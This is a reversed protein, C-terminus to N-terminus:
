TATVDDGRRAEYDVGNEALWKSEPYGSGGIAPEGGGEAPRLYFHILFVQRGAANMCAVDLSRTGAPEDVNKPVSEKRRCSGFEGQNARELYGGRNFRDRLETAPVPSPAISNSPDDGIKTPVQGTEDIAGDRDILEVAPENLALRRDLLPAVVFIDVKRVEPETPKRFVRALVDTLRSEDIRKAVVGVHQARHHWSESRSSRQAPKV